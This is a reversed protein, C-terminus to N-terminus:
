PTSTSTCRASDQAGRGTDIRAKLDAALEHNPDQDLVVDLIHHADSWRHEEAARSALDLMQTMWAGEEAAHASAQATDAQVRLLRAALRRGLAAPSRDHMSGETRTAPSVLVYELTLTEDRRALRAFLVHAGPSRTGIAAAIAEPTVTPAADVGAQVEAASMRKMRSHVALTYGFVELPFGLDRDDVGAGPKGDPLPVLALPREPTAHLDSLLAAATDDDPEVHTDALLRYGKRYVTQVRVTHTKSRRMAQRIRAIAQAVVEPSTAAERWVTDLLEDQTVVRHRNCYLHVLVDFPTPALAQRRGDIWLERREADLMCHAFRYQRRMVGNPPAMPMPPARQPDSPTASLEQGLRRLLPLAAPATALRALLAQTEPEQQRQRALLARPYLLNAATNEDQLHAQADARDLEAQAVSLRGSRVLSEVLWPLLPAEAARNGQRRCETASRLFCDAAEDVRGAAMAAHGHAQWLFGDDQVLAPQPLLSLLEAAADPRGQQRHLLCHINAVTSLLSVDAEIALATATAEEACERAEDLRDAYVLEGALNLCVSALATNANLKRAVRALKRNWRISQEAHGSLSSMIARLWLVNLLGWHSGIRTFITQAENLRTAVSHLEGLRCEVSALLTLTYGLWHPPMCSRGLVLAHEFSQAADRLRGKVHHLTGLCQRTQAELGLDQSRRAAELLRAATVPGDDSGCLAQARLLELDLRPFSPDLHQLLGLARLAAAHRNIAASHKARAFLEISLPSCGRLAHALAHREGVGLLTQRLAEIAPLVLGAPAAARIPIVTKKDHDHIQLDLVFERGALRLSCIVAYRAGAARLMQLMRLHSQPWSAALSQTDQVQLRGDISLGHAICAVLGHAAWHLSPRGTENCLPGIILSPIVDRLLGAATPESAPAPASPVDFMYGVRPISRIIPQPGDDGIALRAARVAQRLAGESVTGDPRLAALLEEKTVVRHRFRALQELVRWARPELKVPEGHRLVRRRVLDLSGGPLTIVLESMAHPRAPLPM